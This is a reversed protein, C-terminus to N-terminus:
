EQNEPPAAPPEQDNMIRKVEDRIQEESVGMEKLVNAAIGEGERELGLLLHETGIYHVDMRRAEDVALEIVKKARFTLGVAGAVSRSGPKVIAAVRDLVPEHQVGLNNLVRAAVGDEQRLLALLLHETGIYNHRLGQAEEQAYTLVGRARETFRDFRDGKDPFPVGQKKLLGVVEDRVQELGVGFAQLVQAAIGDGERLLGLLLHETGIYSHHLLKAEEVALEISRKARRTLSAEGETVQEGPRAVAIIRERLQEEQVGLNHLAKAAIGEGEYLIGLLMHETGIFPHRLNHAEEMAYGMVHRARETFREFRDKEGGPPLFRSLMKRVITEIITRQQKEVSVTRQRNLYDELDQQSFRFESGIRYAPLEGRNVLRRITVVDVRLLAAVEDSTILPEM